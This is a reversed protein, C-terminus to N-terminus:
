SQNFCLLCDEDRIHSGWIQAVATENYSRLAKILEQHEKPVKHLDPFIGTNKIFHLRLRNVISLWIQQAYSTKDLAIIREHFRIDAEVLAFLNQEEAAQKMDAVIQELDNFLEEDLQNNHQKLVFLELQLRIPILLGVVEDVQVDAVVTERYPQSVVLGIAELDRLAERLPGRSVSMQASIDQERLKDGPKLHGRLIADRIDSFIRQRLSLNEQSKFQHPKM